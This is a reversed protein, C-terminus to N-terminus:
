SPDQDHKKDETEKAEEETEIEIFGLDEKIGM